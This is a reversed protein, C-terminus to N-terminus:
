RESHGRCSSIEPVSLFGRFCVLQKRRVGQEGRKRPGGSYAGVMGGLVCIKSNKARKGM